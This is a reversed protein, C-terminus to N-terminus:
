RTPRFHTQFTLHVVRRALDVGTDVSFRYHLGGWIRANGVETVLQRDTAYHREAGTNVADIDLDIFRTGMLEALTFALTGTLCGHASPFEPHNPTGLMPSWGPEVAPVSQWPRWLQFHYKADWCAIFADAQTTLAAAFLRATGVIDWGLKDAHGRLARQNQAVPQDAWFRAIDTQEATRETSTSGGLRRVEDVARRYAGTSLRPPAPPRFQDSTTMVFPRATAIWPTLGAAAPPTPQWQGPGPEGLPPVPGSQSGDNARLALAGAAAARGVEVGLEESEGDPIADLTQELAADFTAVNAPLYAALVDHAAQAAAAAPSAARDAPVDTAFPEYRGEISVVADYMALHMTAVVFPQTILPRGSPTLVGMAVENWEIIVAPDRTADSVPEISAGTPTAPLMTAAFTAMAAGVISVSRSRCWRGTRLRRRVASPTAPTTAPTTRM